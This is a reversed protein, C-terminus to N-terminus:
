STANPQTRRLARFLTVLAGLLALWAFWNGFLLYPTAAHTVPVEAVLTAFPASDSMVEALIRGRNDSIYLSGYKAARAVSFGDEVGRMLAAHGHAIWDVRFDWAPVLM